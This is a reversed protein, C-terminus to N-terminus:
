ETAGEYKWVGNEFHYFVSRPVGNTTVVDTVSGTLNPRTIHFTGQHPVVVRKSAVLTKKSLSPLALDVSTTVNSTDADLRYQVFTPGPTQLTWLAETDSGSDYVSAASSVSVELTNAATTAKLRAGAAAGELLKTETISSTGSTWTFRVSYLTTGDAGRVLGYAGRISDTQLDEITPQTASVERLYKVSGLDRALCAVAARTPAAAGEIRAAEAGGVVVRALAAADLGVLVTDDQTLALTKVASDSVTATAVSGDADLRAVVGTTSLFVAQDLSGVAADLVTGVTAPDALARADMLEGLGGIDVVAPAAAALVESAALGDLSRVAAGAASPHVTAAVGGTTMTRHLAWHGLTAGTPCSAVVGAMTESVVSSDTYRALVLADGSGAPVTVLTPDGGSVSRVAVVTPTAADTGRVVFALWWGVTDAPSTAVSPRVARVSGSLIAGTGSQVSALSGAGSLEKNADFVVGYVETAAGGGGTAPLTFASQTANMNKLAVASAAEYTGVCVTRNETPHVEASPATPLSDSVWTEFNTIDLSVGFQADEAEANPWLFRVRTSPFVHTEVATGEGSRVFQLGFDAYEPMNYADVFLGGTWPVILSQHTFWGQGIVEVNRKEGTSLTKIAGTDDLHLFGGCNVSVINGDMDTAFPSHATQLNNLLYFGGNPDRLLQPAQYLWSDNFSLFQHIKSYTGTAMDVVATFVFNGPEYTSGPNLPKGAYSMSNQLAQYERTSATNSYGNLQLFCTSSGSVSELSVHKDTSVKTHRIVGSDLVHMADSSDMTVRWVDSHLELSTSAKTDQRIVSGDKPSLLYNAYTGDWRSNMGLTALVAYVRDVTPAALAIRPSYQLTGFVGTKALVGQSLISGLRSTKIVYVVGIHSNTSTNSQNFITQNSARDYIEHNIRHVMQCATYVAGDPGITMDLAKQRYNQNDQPRSQLYAFEVAGTTAYGVLMTGTGYYTTGVNAVVTASPTDTPLATGSFVRPAVVAGSVSDRPIECPMYVRIAPAAPDSKDVVVKYKHRNQIANYSGDYSPPLVAVWAVKGTSDWKVLRVPIQNYTTNYLYSSPMESGTMTFDSDTGDLNPIRAPSSFSNNASLIAVTFADVGTGFTDTSMARLSHDNGYVAGGGTTAANRSPDQLALLRNANLNGPVRTVLPFPGTMTAVDNPYTVTLPDGVANHTSAILGASDDRSGCTVSALYGGHRDMELLPVAEDSISSAMEACAVAAGDAAFSALFADVTGTAPSPKLPAVAGPTSGDQLNLIQLGTEEALVPGYTGTVFVGGASTVRVKAKGITTGTFAPGGFTTAGTAVDLVFVSAEKASTKVLAVARENRVDVDMDLLEAGDGGLRAAWALKGDDGSRAVFAGSPGALDAGADTRWQLGGIELDGDTDTVYLRLKTTAPTPSAFAIEQTGFGYPDGAGTMKPEDASSTYHQVWAAGDWYDVRVRLARPASRLIWRLGHFVRAPLGRYGYDIDVSYSTSSAYASGTKPWGAYSTAEPGTSAVSTVNNGYGTVRALTEEYASDKVDGATEYTTLYGPHAPGWGTAGYVRVDSGTYTGSFYLNRDRTVFRGADVDSTKGGALFPFDFTPETMNSQVDNVNFTTMAIGRRGPYAGINIFTRDVINSSSSSGNRYSVKLATSLGQINVVHGVTKREPTANGLGAVDISTSLVSHISPSYVPARYTTWSLTDDGDNMVQSWEFQIGFRGALIDAAYYDVYISSTSNADSVSQNALTYIRGAKSADIAMAVTTMASTNRMSAACLAVSAPTLQLDATVAVFMRKAWVCRGTEANWIALFVVSNGEINENSEVIKQHPMLWIESLTGNLNPMRVPVGMTHPVTGAALFVGDERATATIQMDGSVLMSAAVRIDKTEQSAPDFTYSPVIDTYDRNGLVPSDWFPRRFMKRSTLNWDLLDDRSTPVVGEYVKWDHATWNRANWSSQKYRLMIVGTKLVAERPITFSADAWTFSSMSTNFELPQLDETVLSPNDFKIFVVVDSQDTSPGTKMDFIQFDFLGGNVGRIVPTWSLFPISAGDTSSGGIAGDIRFLYSNAGVNAPAVGFAGSVSQVRLVYNQAVGARNGQFNVALMADLNGFKDPNWCTFGENYGGLLNRGDMYVATYLAGITLNSTAKHVRLKNSKNYFIAAAVTSSNNHVIMDFLSGYDRTTYAVGGPLYLVNYASNTNLLDSRGDIGRQFRNRNTADPRYPVLGYNRSNLVYGGASNWIGYGTGYSHGSYQPQVRSGGGFDYTVNTTAFYRHYLRPGTEVSSSTGGYDRPNTLYMDYYATYYYNRSTSYITHRREARVYVYSTNEAFMARISTDDDNWFQTSIFPHIVIPTGTPDCIQYAHIVRGDKEANTSGFNEAYCSDYFDRYTTLDIEGTHQHRAYIRRYGAVQRHGVHFVVHTWFRNQSDRFTRSGMYLFPLEDGPGALPRADRYSTIQGGTEGDAIGVGVAQQQALLRAEIALQNDRASALAGADQLARTKRTVTAQDVVTHTLHTLTEGEYEVLQNEDGAVPKKVLLSPGSDGGGVGVAGGIEGNLVEVQEALGVLSVPQASM